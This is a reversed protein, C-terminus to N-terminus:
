SSLYPFPEYQLPSNLSADNRVSHKTWKRTDPYPLMYDSYLRDERVNRDTLPYLQRHYTIRKGRGVGTKHYLSNDKGYFTNVPRTIQRIPYWNPIGTYLHKVTSPGIATTIWKTNDGSLTQYTQNVSCVPNYIPTQPYYPNLPDSIAVRNTM